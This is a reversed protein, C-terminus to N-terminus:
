RNMKVFGAGSATDFIRGSWPDPNPLFWTWPPRDETHNPEPQAPKKPIEDIELSECLVPLAAERDMRLAGIPVYALVMSNM